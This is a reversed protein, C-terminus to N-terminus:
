LSIASMSSMSSLVLREWYVLAFCISSSISILFFISFLGLSFDSHSTAMRYLTFDSRLIWDIFVDRFSISLHLLVVEITIIKLLQDPSLCLLVFHIGGLVDPLSDM